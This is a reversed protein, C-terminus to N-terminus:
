KGYTCGTPYVDIQGNPRFGPLWPAPGFSSYYDGKGWHGEDNIPANESVDAYADGLLGAWEVGVALDSGTGCDFWHAFWYFGYPFEEVIGWFWDGGSPDVNNVPNDGSYGYLNPGPQPDVQSWRAVSPDYYRM